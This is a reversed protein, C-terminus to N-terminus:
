EGWECKTCCISKHVHCGRRRRTKAKCKKCPPLKLDVQKPNVYGKRAMLKDRAKNPTLKGDRIKQLMQPSGHLKVYAITKIQGPGIGILKALEVDTSTAYHSLPEPEKEGKKTAWMKKSRESWRKALMSKRVDEFLEFIQFESLHRRALNTTIVYIREEDVTAFEKVITKPIIQLEACLDFRTHGDLVKGDKNVTIPELQGQTKLSEKLADRQEQSPRPVLALYEPDIYIRTPELSM